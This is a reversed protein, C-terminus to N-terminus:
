QKAEEGVLLHFIREIEGPEIESFFRQMEILKGDWFKQREIHLRDLEGFIRSQEEKEGESMQETEMALYKQLIAQLKREEQLNEGQFITEETEQMRRRFTLEAVESPTERKQMWSLLRVQSFFIRKQGQRYGLLFHPLIQKECLRDLTRESFGLFKAAAKRSLIKDM